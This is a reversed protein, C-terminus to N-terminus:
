ISATELRARYPDLVRQLRAELAVLDPAPAM